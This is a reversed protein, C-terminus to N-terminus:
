NLIVGTWDPHRVAFLACYSTSDGPISITAVVTDTWPGYTVVYTLRCGNWIRGGGLLTDLPAFYKVPPDAREIGAAGTLARLLLATPRSVGPTLLSVLVVMVLVLLLRRVM